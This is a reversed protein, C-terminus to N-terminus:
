MSWMLCRKRTRMTFGNAYISHKWQTMNDNLACHHYVEAHPPPPPPPSPAHM